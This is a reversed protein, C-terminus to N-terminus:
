LCIASIVMEHEPVQSGSTDSAAFYFFDTVENSDCDITHAILNKLATLMKIVHVERLFRRGHRCYTIEIKEPLDWMSM